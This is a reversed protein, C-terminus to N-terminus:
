VFNEALGTERIVNERKMIFFFDAGLHEDANRFMGSQLGLIYLFM